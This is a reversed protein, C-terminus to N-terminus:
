TSFLINFIVGITKVWKNVEGLHSTQVVLNPFPPSSRFQIRRVKSDLCKATKEIKNNPKQCIVELIM